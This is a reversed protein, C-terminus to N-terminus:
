WLQVTRHVKGQRIEYTGGISPYLVNYHIPKTFVLVPGGSYFYRIAVGGLDQKRFLEHQHGIGARLSFVNNIKGYIFSSGSM